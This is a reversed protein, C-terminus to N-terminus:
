RTSKESAQITLGAIIDRLPAEHRKPETCTHSSGCDECRRHFYSASM